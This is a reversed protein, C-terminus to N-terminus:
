VTEEAYISDFYKRLLNEDRIIDRLVALSRANESEPIWLRLYGGEAYKEHLHEVTREWIGEKPLEPYHSLGFQVTRRLVNEPIILRDAEAVIRGYISRPEGSASARHDEAAESIIRIEDCSFWERLRRDARIMRGSALHHVDRGECLGVDHYAAAAYLMDRNVEYYAAMEMAKDIVSRVHDEQHAKDFYRYQPIINEEIYDVLTADIDYQKM